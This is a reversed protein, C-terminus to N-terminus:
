ETETETADLDKGLWSIGPTVKSGKSTRNNLAALNGATDLLMAQQGYTTLSLNQGISIAYSVSVGASESTPRPDRVAYFHASLWREILELRTSTYNSDSCLETVLENAVAIFPTLSITSDVEIIQKIAAETTRIAM